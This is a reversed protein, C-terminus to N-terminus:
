EEGNKDLDDTEEAPLADEVESEQVDEQMRGTDSPSLMELLEEPTCKQLANTYEANKTALPKGNVAIYIGAADYNELFTNVVSALIICEAEKSMTKLYEGAAKSLDLHLIKGEYGEEEEFSLVKTDLSVINHKTLAGLLEEATKEELQIVEQKLDYSGANGYYIVAEGEGPVSEQEIPVDEADDISEETEKTEEGSNEEEEAAQPTEEEVSKGEEEEADTDEQLLYELSSVILDESSMEPVVIEGSDVRQGAENGCASLVIAVVAMLIAARRIKSM